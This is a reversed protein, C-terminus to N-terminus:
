ASFFMWTVPSVSDDVFFIVKTFSTLSMFNWQTFLAVSAPKVEAAFVYNKFLIQALSFERFRKCNGSSIKRKTKKYEKILRQKNDHRRYAGIFGVQFCSFRIKNVYSLEHWIQMYLCWFLPSKKTLLERRTKILPHQHDFQGFLLVDLSVKM